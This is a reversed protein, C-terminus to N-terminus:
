RGPHADSGEGRAPTGPNGADRGKIKKVSGDRADLELELMGGDRRLLKIEYAWLGQERELEVEIVEGPYDREVRELVTRLPLVEGAQLAQRARDHDDREGAQAALPAAALLAAALTLRLVPRLLATAPRITHPSM